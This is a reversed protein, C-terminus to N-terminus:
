QGGVDRIAKKEALCKEILDREAKAQAIHEPPIPRVTYDGEGEVYQIRDDYILVVDSLKSNTDKM